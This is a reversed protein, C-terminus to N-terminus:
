LIKKKARSYERSYLKILKDIKEEDVPVCEGNKFKNLYITTYIGHDGIRNHIGTFAKRADDVSQILHLLEVQKETM